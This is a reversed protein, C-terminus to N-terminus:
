LGLSGARRLAANEPRDRRGGIRPWGRTPLISSHCCAASNCCAVSRSGNSRPRTSVPRITAAPMCASRMVQRSIAWPRCCPMSILGTGSADIYPYEAVQLGAAQFVSPHNAWTPNSCWIRKTGLKQQLFDAAVRLTGTGGPTQATVARQSTVIEHDAGFLLDRVHRAYEPLGDIGLYSKSTEETLLRKEAERVVSLIPTKGNADQYVGVSLNIKQPHSDKKFAETLGLIADPPAMQLIEFM